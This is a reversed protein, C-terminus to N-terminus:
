PTTIVVDGSDVPAIAADPNADPKAASAQPTAGSGDGAPEDATSEPGYRYAALDSFRVADGPELHGIYWGARGPYVWGSPVTVSGGHSRDGWAPEAETGTWAKVTMQDGVVRACVHWPLPRGYIVPKLDVSGFQVFPNGQRGTDWTHFNFIWEAGFFINKSLTLMQVTGNAARRQRLVAGQQNLLQTQSTWTACSQQDTVVPASAPWFAERLNGGINGDLAVADFVTGSAAQIVYADGAEPTLVTTATSSDSGDYTLYWQNCATLVLVLSVALGALEVSRRRARRAAPRRDTDTTSRTTM